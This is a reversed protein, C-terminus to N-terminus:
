IDFFLLELYSRAQEIIREFVDDNIILWETLNQPKNDGYINEIDKDSLGLSRIKHKHLVATKAIQLVGPTFLIPLIGDERLKNEILVKMEALSITPLM